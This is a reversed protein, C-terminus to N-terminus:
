VNWKKNGNTINKNPIYITTQYASHVPNIAAGNNGQNTYEPFDSSNACLHDVLRQGYYEAFEDLQNKYRNFQEESAPDSNESSKVLLGKNTFKVQNFALSDSAIFFVLSPNIFDDLLSKYGGTITGAIVDNKIKNYLATGLIREINKDQSMPIIWDIDTPDLNGYIPSNAVLYNYDVFTVKTAM